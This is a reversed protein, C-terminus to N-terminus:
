NVSEILKRANSRAQYHQVDWLLSTRSVLAEYAERTTMGLFMSGVAPNAHGGNEVVRVIKYAIGYTKSGRILRYARTDTVGVVDQLTNLHHAFAPLSFRRVPSNYNSMYRVYRWYLWPAVGFPV